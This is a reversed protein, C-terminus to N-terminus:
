SVNCCQNCIYYTLLLLVVQKFGCVESAEAASLFAPPKGSLWAAHKSRATAIDLATVAKMMRQLSVTSKKVMVSLQALISEEQEQEQARLMAEANNLAVVPAPEMYVTSGSASVALSVSGKPLQSQPM